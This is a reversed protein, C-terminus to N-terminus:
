MFKRIKKCNRSLYIRSSMRHGTHSNETEFAYATVTPPLKYSYIGDKEEIIETIFKWKHSDVDNSETYIVRVTDFLKNDYSLRVRDGERILGNIISIEAGFLVSNFFYHIEDTKYWVHDHELDSRMSFYKKAKVLRYTKVRNIVSFAPDDIGSVFLMPKQAFSLYSSADFKKIWKKRKKGGFASPSSCDNIFFTDNYIYAGGYVPAFAAFRKDIACTICLIFSGWSIGTAVIKEKDVDERARLINNSLIVNSVNHYIWSNKEDDPNDMIGTNCYSPGADINKVKELNNDLENGYTDFAIAIYGKNNWYKVWDIFVQGGGGHVLVIAPYGNKPKPFLVSDPKGIVAFVWTYKKERYPEAEFKIASINEGINIPVNKLKPVKSFLVDTNWMFNKKNKIQM